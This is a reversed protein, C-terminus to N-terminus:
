GPIVGAIDANAGHVVLVAHDHFRHILKMKCQRASGIGLLDALQQILEEAERSQVEPALLPEHLLGSKGTQLRMPGLM